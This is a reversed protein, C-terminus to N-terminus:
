SRSAGAGLVSQGLAFMAAAFGFLCMFWIQWTNYSFAIQVAAATFLAFGFSRSRADLRAMNRLLLLGFVMLLVAGVFGLEYWTQLYVNHPHPITSHGAWSAVAAPAEHMVPTTDYTMNAGVGFFPANPVKKAIESWITIRLQASLQLWSANQLELYRALYAAPVVGLCAAVWAGSLAYRALPASYWAVAFVLASAPLALKSTESTALFVAATTLLVLMCMIVRRWWRSSLVSATMLAPWLLLPAPVINRTLDDSHVAILRGHEWTFYRAPKLQDPGLALLNYVWIKIAQGSAAEAIMYLAGVLLGIWLGEGMHLADEGRETRMLEVLVLSGALVVIAMLSVSVPPWPDPAWLASLGAYLIFAALAIAAGDLRPKLRDRQHRALACVCAGALLLPLTVQVTKASMIMTPVGVMIVTGLGIGWARSRLPTTLPASSFL